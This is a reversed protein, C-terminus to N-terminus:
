RFVFDVDPQGLVVVSRVDQHTGNQKSDPAKGPQQPTDEEAYDDTQVRRPCHIRDSVDPSRAAERGFVQRGVVPEDRDEGEALAPVVIVM